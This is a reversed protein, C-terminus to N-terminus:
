QDIIPVVRYDHEFQLRWKRVLLRGIVKGLWRGIQLYCLLREHWNLPARGVASSFEILKRFRPFLLKGAEGPDWFAIRERQNRYLRMSTAPHERRFFLYRPIEYLRGLLSLEVLLWRDSGNLAHILKTKRLISSRMLGFVQFCSHKVCILDHFRKHAKPSDTKLKDIYNGMVKGHEDIITTKPYCAVISNDHDLVEVCRTIFEPAIVDDHAAWKFYEGKSLEFVKNFNKAAGVNKENRYYRIRSDRAAFRLCIEPTRDTSANDSIILEFDSYSQALISDLAETLYKEGNYVPMGISVRRNHKGM